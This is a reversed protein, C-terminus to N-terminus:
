SCATSLWQAVLGAGDAPRSSRLAARMDERRAPDGLLAGLTRALGPLNASPDVRDELLIAGGAAVVPQANHRQHQDRHYPNPLFLTPTGNAWAEAVSGAGARSVAADAAQWATGMADCYSVVVAPIDARDYAQQLEDTPFTGCQHFVQWGALIDRHESSATLEIMARIISEAGHTAGTIFLVPKDAALGLARRA